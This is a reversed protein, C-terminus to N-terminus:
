KNVVVEKYVVSKGDRRNLGLCEPILDKYIACNRLGIDCHLCGKECCVPKYQKGNLEFIDMSCDVKLYHDFDFEVIKESGSGIFLEEYNAIDIVYNWTDQDLLWGKIEGKDLLYDLYEFEKEMIETVKM